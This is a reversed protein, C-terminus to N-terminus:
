PVQLFTMMGLNLNRNYLAYKTGSPATAPVSVLADGTEGAPFTESVVSFPNTLVYGDRAVLRQHLGLFTMTNHDVGANLYRLLLTQGAPASITGSGPGYDQGNILWYKPHWDNMNFGSPNANFAPDIESLVLVHQGGAAVGYDPGGTGSHVVLAGYLGMATQRGSDGASQYLYTGAPATFSVSITDGPAVETPGPESQAGPVEISITHGAPLANTVNLTVVEGANVELVPGPLQADAACTPAFGWIPIATSDSMTATGAKACLDFAPDVAALTRSASASASRQAVRPTVRRTRPTTQRSRQIAVSSASAAEGAIWVPAKGVRAAENHTERTMLGALAGAAAFGVVVLGAAALALARRRRIEARKRM